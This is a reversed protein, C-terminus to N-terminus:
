RCPAIFSDIENVETISVVVFDMDHHFILSAVNNSDFYFCSGDARDSPGLDLAVRGQLM